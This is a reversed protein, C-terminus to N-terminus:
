EAAGEEDAGLAWDSVATAIGGEAPTAVLISSLTMPVRKDVNFQSLRGSLDSVVACPAPNGGTFGLTLSLSQVSGIVGLLWITAAYRNEGTQAFPFAVTVAVSPQDVDIRWAGAVGSLSADISVLRDSADGTVTLELTLSRVQQRMPVALSYDRDKEVTLEQTGSFFWGLQGTGYNATAIRDAVTVGAATNYVRVTYLGAPFLNDVPNTAGSLTAKYDGVEVTYDSPADIGEGRDSWDPSLSVIRGHEPHDTADKNCSMLILFM